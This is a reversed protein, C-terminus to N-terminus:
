FPIDKDAKPPPTNYTETSTPTTQTQNVKFSIRPKGGKGDTHWGSLYILKGDVMLQGTFDPAGPAQKTKLKNDWLGGFGERAAM